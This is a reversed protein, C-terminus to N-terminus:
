PVPGGARHDAFVEELTREVTVISFPKRVLTINAFRPPLMSADYGTAFVVPLGKAMLEDAVAYSFGGNLRVDLVAGDLAESRALALAQDTRAVPGVATGGLDEIMQVMVLSPLYEDEVVLIRRGNLAAATM